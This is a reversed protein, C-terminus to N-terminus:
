ESCIALGAVGRECATPVTPLHSIPLKAPLCVCVCLCVYLDQLGCVLGSVQQSQPWTHQTNLGVCITYLACVRSCEGRSKCCFVCHGFRCWVWSHRAGVRFLLNTPSLSCM